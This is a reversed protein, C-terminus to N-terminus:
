TSISDALMVCNRGAAKARYLARDAATLADDVTPGHDPFAAVGISCTIADLPQGRLALRMEAVAQRIQEARNLAAPLSIEPLIVTFEEGGYRCAIDGARIHSKLLRGFERLALDGADHGFRDNFRKFHDLDLMLLVLGRGTRQHRKGELQLVEELYRRNFLDTLPDRTSQSRLTERLRLNSLALAIHEATTLALQQRNESLASVSQALHLLGIVERQAVLPICVYAFPPPTPLHECVLGSRTNQVLHFRNRRLAWCANAAFAPEGPEPQGWLSVQEVVQGAGLIALMGSSEPFLRGGMEAIIAYAEESTKCSSLLEGLESLLTIERTRQELAELQMRLQENARVLEAAAQRSATIDHLALVIAQPEHTTPHLLPQANVSCWTTRGDPQVFGLVIDQQPQGTQLARTGPQEHFPFPSGDERVVRWGPPPPERRALQPLTLGTIREASANTLLYNGQRDIVILGEDLSAVVSRQLAESTRLAQEALRADTVDMVTGRVTATEAAPDFAVKITFQLYRPAGDEGRLLHDFTVVQQTALAQDVAERFRQHGEPGLREFAVRTREAEPIGAVGLLRWGEESCRLRHRRTDYEWSGLRAIEQAEALLAQSARLQEEVQVRETIDHLVAVVHSVRGSEDRIPSITLDDWFPSGDKRYHRLTARWTEGSRVAKLMARIAARDTGPGQLISLPRGVLEQPAYGTIASTAPNCSLIALGRTTAKLLLIGDITAEIARTRLQLAREARRREVYQSLLRGFDVIATLLQEDPTIAQYSIGILAGLVQNGEVLPICCVSRISASLRADAMSGAPLDTFVLPQGSAIAHQLWEQRVRREESSTPPLPPLGPEHWVAVRHWAGERREFYECAAWGAADALHGLAPPLAEELPAAVELARIAAHLAADRREAEKRGSIDLVQAIFYGSSPTRGPVASIVIQVWLTHGDRHRYRKELSFSERVGAQIQRIGPRELHLDEPHSLHFVTMARLEDQSYGVLQCFSPNCDLIRGDPAVIVIGSAAFQFAPVHFTEAPAPPEQLVVLQLAEQGVPASSVRLRIREGSARLGDREQEQADDTLGLGGPFIQSLPQDVLGGEPYEFLASAARNALLIIGADNVILAAFPLAALIQDSALTISRVGM